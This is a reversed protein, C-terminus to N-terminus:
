SNKRNKFRRIAKSLESNESTAAAMQQLLGDKGAADGTLENLILNMKEKRLDSLWNNEMQDQSLHASANKELIDALKTDRDIDLKNQALREAEEEAMLQQVADTEALARGGQSGIGATNHIAQGYKSQLAIRAIDDTRDGLLLQRATNFYPDIDTRAFDEGAENALEQASKKKKFFGLGGGALAGLGAGVIGGVPGIFSGIQAGATSGALAGSGVASWDTGGHAYRQVQGGYAQKYVTKDTNQYQEGKGTMANVAEQRALLYNVMENMNKNNIEQTKDSVMDGHKYAKNYTKLLAKGLTKYPVGYEPDISNGLVAFDGSTAMLVDDAKDGKGKKVEQLEGDKRVIEGNSVAAKTRDVNPPEGGQAPGGGGPMQPGGGQDWPGGQPQGQQQMPDMQMEDFGPEGGIAYSQVFPNYYRYM